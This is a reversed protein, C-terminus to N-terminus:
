AAAIVERMVDLLSAVDYPKLLFGIHPRDLLGEIKTRDAHGTSFIVPLTPHERAIIEYVATGDMDPLGVDLVVLDPIDFRLSTLAEAGSTALKVQVGELELLMAIGSGVSPDDEVLLVRRAPAVREPDPMVEMATLASETLPLFIHFTTGVGVTSEVFMDGGHRQVVQLAVPIGLGTGTRKTTFLPEFIHRLTEETMGHGSDTVIFHAYREPHELVFPLKTGIRERRVTISFTGGVPMADRSNLVLNTFVQQLQNPDGDIRLQPDELSTEITCSAALLSRAELAVAQLWPQVDLAVRAPEAPQTFRLIDETVRKGRKVARSIHDLSTEINRGRRLVEIFPSIGMLVNNFEHAVTAALRGLSAIRNAQELKNELKLRETVDTFGIVVGVPEGGDVIPAASYEVPFTSGDMRLFIGSALSVVNGTKAVSFIAGDDNEQHLLPQLNSQMLADATTGLMRAAAANCMTCRGSLDITLIGEATSELLLELNRTLQQREREVRRAATIDRAFGYVAIAGNKEKAIMSVEILIPGRKCDITLEAMVPEHSALVAALEQAAFARDDAHMLDVWSRGLWEQVSFGTVWEFAANLSTFTGAPSLTFIVESAGEVVARYREESAALARRGRERELADALINALSEVFQVDSERFRHPEHAFASLAGFTASESAIPVTVASRAEADVANDGIVITREERAALLTADRAADIVAQPINETGAAYRVDTERDLEFLVAHAVGLRTAVLECAFALTQADVSKLALRSLEAIAGQQQARMRLEREQARAETVDQLVGIIKQPRGREDRITHGRGHLTRIEGSPLVIRHDGDFSGLSEVTRKRREIQLLRDEPHTLSDVLDMDVDSQKELGYIRFLEDSWKRRGSALDYEYSGVHAIAQAAALQERSSRLEMESRRRETIDQAVTVAGIPRGGDDYLPTNIVFAPFHTGDRRPMMLEGSWAEGHSLTDIKATSASIPLDVASRGIVEDGSWGYLKEAGRNWYTIRGTVDIAIVGQDVSDLLHAQLVLREDALKRATVDQVLWVIQEVEGIDSAIPALTVSTWVISADIRVARCEFTARGGDLPPPSDEPHQFDSFLRGIIVDRTAGFIEALQENVSVFRGERTTIGIGLPAKEFVRRYRDESRRLAEFLSRREDRTQRDRIERELATALRALRDKWVYDNAGARMLDVATEEGIMSSVVIFPIIRDRERVIALAEEASFGPINYDSLIASWPGEEDLAHLLADRSDVRHWTFEFGFRRLESAVLDADYVNDEIFLLRM